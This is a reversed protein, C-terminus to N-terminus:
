PLQHSVHAGVLLLESLQIFSWFHFRSAKWRGGEKKVIRFELSIHYRATLSWKTALRTSITVWFIKGIKLFKNQLTNWNEFFNNQKTLWLVRFSGLPGEFSGWLGSLVGLGHHFQTILLLMLSSFSSSLSFSSCVLAKQKLYKLRHSSTCKSMLLAQGMGNPTLSYFAVSLPHILIM